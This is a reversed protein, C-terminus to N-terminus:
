RRAEEHSLTEEPTLGGCWTEFDHELGDSLISTLLRSDFVTDGSEIKEDITPWPICKVHGQGLVRVLTEAAERLSLDQGPVNFVRNLCRPDVAGNTVLRCLDAVHTFSRRPCGDGYLTIRGTTHLQRLFNGITGFSYSDGVVSGYPVGIRFVTFRVDFAQSYAQLYNECAMKNAAYLTQASKPGDESIATSSGKYVLRTSPFVIRPRYGSIRIADLVRLLVLNNGELNAEYREYSSTTGTNGAFVFVCDVDWDIGKLSERGSLDTRTGDLSCPSSVRWGKQMLYHGLNRGLYGTRGLLVASKGITSM